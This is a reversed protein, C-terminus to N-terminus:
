ARARVSKSYRSLLGEGDEPLIDITNSYGPGGVAFILTHGLVVWLMSLTRVGDLASFENGLRQPALLKDTNKLLSFCELCQYWWATGGNTECKSNDGTRPREAGTTSLEDVPGDPSTVPKPVLLPERVPDGSYTPTNGRSQRGVFAMEEELQRQQQHVGINRGEEVGDPAWPSGAPIQLHEDGSDNFVGGKVPNSPPATNASSNPETSNGDCINKKKAHRTLRKQRHHHELATGVLVLTALAGILSFVAVTGADVPLRLENGCSFSVAGLASGAGGTTSRSSSTTATTTSPQISATLNALLAEVSASDCSQPLCLGLSAVLPAQGLCYHAGQVDACDEPSGYDNLHLKSLFTADESSNGATAGLLIAVSELIHGSSYSLLALHEFSSGLLSESCPRPLQSEVARYVRACVPEFPTGLFPRCTPESFMDDSKVNGGWHHANAPAPSVAVLDPGGGSAAAPPVAILFIGIVYILPLHLRTARPM